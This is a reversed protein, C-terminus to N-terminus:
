IRCESYERYAHMRVSSADGASDAVVMMKLLNHMLEASAWIHLLPCLYVVVNSLKQTGQSKERECLIYPAGYRVFLMSFDRIRAVRFLACLTDGYTHVNSSCLMNRYYLPIGHTNVISRHSDLYLDLPGLHTPFPFSYLTFDLLATM